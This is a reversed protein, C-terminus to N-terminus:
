RNLFVQLKEVASSIGQFVDSISAEMMYCPTTIIKNKKDVVVSQVNVESVQAGLSQMGESIAGIEYPSAEQTTGVTINAAVGSDKFALSILVSSMCMALIPKGSAQASQILRKVDKQISAQPGDFAWTSFNKASGFGGPIVLGDYDEISLTSVDYISGRAIRAAEVLMNRPTEIEEGTIHNIVHFQDENPAACDYAIGKQDLSLLTLTSEQIEAGDYVGCGSLLVLVKKGM